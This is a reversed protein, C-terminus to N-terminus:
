YVIDIINKNVEVDKGRPKKILNVKSFNLKKWKSNIGARAAKEDAQLAQNTFGCYVALCTAEVPELHFINGNVYFTQNGTNYTLKPLKRTIRKLNTNNQLSLKLSIILDNLVGILASILWNRFFADKTLFEFGNPTIYNEFEIIYYNIKKNKKFFYYRTRGLLHKYDDSKAINVQYFHVIGDGYTINEDKLDLFFPYYFLEPIIQIPSLHNGYSPITRINLCYRGKADKQPLINTIKKVFMSIRRIKNKKIESTDKQEEETIFDEVKNVSETYIKKIEENQYIFYKVESILLDLEQTTSLAKAKCSFDKLKAIQKYINEKNHGM